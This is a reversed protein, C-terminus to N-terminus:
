TKHHCCVRANHAFGAGGAVDRVCWPVVFPIKRLTFGSFAEALPATLDMGARQRKHPMECGRVEVIKLQQYTMGACSIMVFVCVDCAPCSVHLCDSVMRAFISCALHGCMAGSWGDYCYVKNTLPYSFM